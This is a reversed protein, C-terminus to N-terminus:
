ELDLEFWVRKGATESEVGWRTSLTDVLYLGRGSTRTTGPESDVGMTSISAHDSVSVRLHHEDVCLALQMPGEGHLV